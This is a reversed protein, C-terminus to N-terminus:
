RNNAIAGASEQVTDFTGMGPELDLRKCFNLWVGKDDKATGVDIAPAPAATVAVTTETAAKATTLVPASASMSLENATEAGAEAEAQASSATGAALLQERTVFGDVAVADFAAEDWEDGAAAKAADKDLKEPLTSAASGM